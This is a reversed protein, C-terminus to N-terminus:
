ANTMVGRDDELATQVLHVLAPLSGGSLRLVALRSRVGGHSNPNTITDMLQQAKAMEPTNFMNHILADIHVPKAAPFFSKVGFQFGLDEVFATVARHDELEPFAAAFMAAANPQDQGDM